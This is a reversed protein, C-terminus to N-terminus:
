GKLHREFFSLTRDWALRAAEADYRAANTDNHFAHNVGEYIHSQHEVGAAILASLYADIGANIRSDLGAYHLLLPSRIRKAEEAEPQRGYFAVVANLQNDYVAVQNALGGGWCFGVVGVRGNVDLRGKRAYAIVQLANQLTEDSNLAYIMERAKDSDAPTGTDNASLFDPAVAVYGALAARRAVDKIHPNLGRNEHIVVVAPLPQEANAPKAVYANMTVEPVVFRATETILRPDDEAVMAAQAYNNELLPLLAYAATASGALATLRKMFSRRDLPEKGYGHTYRDYLDIIDQPIKSLSIRPNDKSKPM